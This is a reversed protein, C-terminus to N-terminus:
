NQASLAASHTLVSRTGAPPNDIILDGLLALERAKPYGRRWV